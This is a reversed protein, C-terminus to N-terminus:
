LGTGAEREEVHRGEADLLERARRFCRQLDDRQAQIYDEDLKEGLWEGMSGDDHIWRMRRVPTTDGTDVESDDGADVEDDADFEDDPPEQYEFTRGDKLRVLPGAFGDDYWIDEIKGELDLSFYLRMTKETWHISVSKAGEARLENIEEETWDEEDWDEEDWDEENSEEVDWHGENWLPEVEHKRIQGEGAGEWMQREDAEDGDEFERAEPAVNRPTHTEENMFTRQPEM